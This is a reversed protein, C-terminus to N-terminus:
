AMGAPAGMIELVLVRFHALAPIVRLFMGLADKTIMVAVAVVLAGVTPGLFAATPIERCDTSRQNINIPAKGQGILFDMAPKQPLCQLEAAALM